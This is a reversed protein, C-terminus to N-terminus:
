GVRFTITEGAASVDSIRLGSSEGNWRRSSPRTDADLVTGPTMTFFDSGDGGNANTELDYRGDAQLVACQYHRAASGTQHENSGLIDCHYVALGDAPCAADLGLRSRNEVLFYENAMPTRYLFATDYAGHQAEILAPKNLSIVKPCWGVLYRLYASIPAPTRGWNNHNGASMLCHFGIGASQEFDGDRRGYDYLDPFRCLMHGSEHCFTGITLDSSAGGLASIQYLNTRYGAHEWDLYWNHPWLNDKYVVEGAYLFSVADLIGENKSDFQALDIGMSVVQNLAEEALLVNIYYNRKRSLTIPGVVVNQYELKGSSMLLYYERVSCYNGNTTYSNGNLMASVEDATITTQVDQFNVLITLGRVVGENLQRGELLGKNPGFTEVIATSALHPPRANRFREDFKNNRIDGDEKLHLPLGGPAPGAITAGTSVFEGDVLSAYCYLGLMEDYVTTYGKPTEYRAYYEDGQVVLKVDPGNQQSFTQTQGFIASM